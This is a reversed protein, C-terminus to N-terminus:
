LIRSDDIEKQFVEKKVRKRSSRKSLYIANEKRHCIDLLVTNLSIRAIRVYDCCFRYKLISLRIDYIEGVKFAM